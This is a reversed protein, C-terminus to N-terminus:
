TLGSAPEGLAIRPVKLDWIQTRNSRIAQCVFSIERNWHRGVLLGCVLPGNDISVHPMSELACLVSAWEVHDGPVSVIHWKLIVQVLEVRHTRDRKVVWVRRDEGHQGNLCVIRPLRSKVEHNERRSPQHGLARELRGVIM